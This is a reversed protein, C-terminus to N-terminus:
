LIPSGRSYIKAQLPRLVVKPDYPYIGANRFGAKITRRTFAQLRVKHLGHLFDSKDYSQGGLRTQRNVARGHFHKYQQFLVGNLPQLIHTTHPPFSYCIIRHRQCYDLFQWTLHAGCNHMLLLRYGKNEEEETSRDFHMLWEAALEDSIYGNPSIALVYDDELDRYWEEMHAKGLVNICEIITISERSGASDIVENREYATIVAERKGQGLRFGTEDFNFINSPTIKYTDIEIKLRDFWTQLVGFDQANFRNPDMPKQVIRAYDTGLREFFRNAWNPGVVRPVDGLPTINRLILNAQTKLLETTLPVGINDLYALWAKLAREQYETFLRNTAKRTSKSARGKVRNYLTTYPIAHARAADKINKFKKAALEETAIKIALEQKKYSDSPM